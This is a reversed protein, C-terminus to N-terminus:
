KDLSRQGGRERPDQPTDQTIESPDSAVMNKSRSLWAKVQFLGCRNRLSLTHKKESEDSMNDFAQEDYSRIATYMAIIIFPLLNWRKHSQKTEAWTM